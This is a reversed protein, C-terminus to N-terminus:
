TSDRPDASSWQSTMESTMRSTMESSMRLSGESSAYMSPVVAGPNEDSNEDADDTFMNVFCASLVFFEFLFVHFSNLAVEVALIIFMPRYYSNYFYCMDATNDLGADCIVSVTKQTDISWAFFAVQTAWISALISAYLVSETRDCSGYYWKVLGCIILALFMFGTIILHVLFYVETWYFMDKYFYEANSQNKAEDTFVVNSNAIYPYATMLFGFVTM